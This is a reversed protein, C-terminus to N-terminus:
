SRAAPSEVASLLPLSASRDEAISALPQAPPRPQLLQHTHRQGNASRRAQIEGAAGLVSLLLVVGAWLPVSWPLVVAAPLGFVWLKAGVVLAALPVLVAASRVLSWLFTALVARPTCGAVARVITTPYGAVQAVERMQVEEERGQWRPRVASVAMAARPLVARAALGPHDAPGNPRDMLAQQEQHSV